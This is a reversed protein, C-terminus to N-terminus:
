GSPAPSPREAGSAGVGMGGGMGSMGSVGAVSPVPTEAQPEPPEPTPDPPEPTPEPPEPTPGPPEPTPDPPAPTPQPPAPTPEPPETPGIPPETPAISVSPEPTLSPSTSPEATEIPAGDCDRNPAFPGGWSQGYPQYYPEFFYATYTTKARSVNAGVGPGRRARRIWGDVAENWSRHDAEADDLVLYGRTAPSGECGDSWRYWRDDSGRIVEVGRVYPDAGPATGPLFYETLQGRSWESPRFGTFVDVRATELRDPRRFDNVQWRRTVESLFADWIPAAVDLSFVPNAVTTVPSANSNGAWVGVTLAYEGRRRGERTPPAIYGYANLDKADNTTGTKLAAPRRQGNSTTIMHEAWVPNVSPMTNGALIDTVVFAAEPSIVEDGRPPDYPELVEDGDADEVRLISTAPVHRGGNAITGYSANLDMPHVELTGLAMSLGASPRDAQFEMGFDQAREWVDGEGVLALAKVAPVNLSFQLANRVRLPGRERGNFDTPTYGGGFNTTVDMLMTSATLSREDIGTAYTFPKFASGPQRWGDALVDFQPQMKKSVRRREYYNASGVHAIIEGTQYDIASLAANWVNQNRLRAMWAAYPVGLAKAAAQPNSRHPVLAAAEVWKEASQQVKPDLTTVVRLGGQELRDCTVEGACLKEALEERVFWVFHPAKWAPISRPDLVLPEDIADLFDQRDYRDGSLVRRSADDALLRLVLNRRQVIASDAPVVLDGDEDEVANRVLDYASPAQPIAALTAAQAITLDELDRVDFYSRAAAKVGYSNNGYFNQNLYATLIRQKGQEGRYSDTVRISQIIEKIKREILRSPDQMVEAPLLRQRVLQQTITSAGRPDGTLTDIAASAFGLPDVGTNTWFTRDEVATTADALIAPVDQWEIVERREGGESFRALITSGDRAYIISEANFAMSELKSPSELGRSFVLAGGVATVFGGVAVLAMAGFIAIVLTPLLSRRRARTPRSPGSTPARRTKAPAAPKRQAQAPPPLPRRDPQPPKPPPGAPPGYGPVGPPPAPRGGVGPPNAPM